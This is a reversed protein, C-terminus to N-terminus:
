RDAGTPLTACPSTGSSATGRLDALTELGSWGPVPRDDPVPRCSGGDSAYTWRPGDALLQDLAALLRDVDASSSGVGFSARVAGDGQGLGFRALLPHACSRFLM